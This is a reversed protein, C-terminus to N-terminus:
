YYWGMGYTWRSPLRRHVMTNLLRRPESVDHPKFREHRIVGGLRVRSMPLSITNVPIGEAEIVWRLFRESHFAEVSECYTQAWIIRNTIVQSFSAPCVMFRDNVGKHSGWTPVVLQDPAGLVLGIERENLARHCFLDARVLILQEFDMGAIREGLAQLCLLQRLVNGLSSFDDRWTDGYGKLIDFYERHVNEDVTYPKAVGDFLQYNELALQANEGSRPNAVAQQFILLGTETVEAGRDRLVDVIRRRLSPLCLATARPLGYYAVLIKRRSM